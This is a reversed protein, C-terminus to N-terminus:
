SSAPAPAPTSRRRRRASRLWLWVPAGLITLLLLWPLLFGLVTLAAGLGAVLGDWGAQLGGLFGTADDTDEVDGLQEIYVTVTALSTQDALWKQQATLSDLEAQRRSLQAEVAMIERISTAEALLAEVRDVSKEQARIRAEVDIVQTTVDETGTSTGDLEAVDELAAVTDAFRASPVRIVMRATDLGGSEATTTEEQTVHGGQQDIIKQVDFRAAGVDDAELTVTGTSIVAAQQPETIAAGADAGGGAADDAAEAGADAAEPAARQVDPGGAVSSSDAGGHDSSSCAGIALLTGLAAAAALSRTRTITTM